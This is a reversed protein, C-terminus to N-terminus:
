NHIAYKGPSVGVSKKFSRIFNAYDHYGCLMATDSVSHGNKLLKKAESIRKGAIYKTVTTGLNKKFIRCLQNVSIYLEGAITELNINESFNANIYSIAKKVLRDDINNKFKDTECRAMFLNNIFVLMSLIASNKIIDDGFENQSKLTEFLNLLKEQEDSTLSIKNSVNDGRTYFCPSLDTTETSSSYIFAPHIELVFRRFPSNEHCIIKHAEFQNIIFLDGEGVEYVRDGILYSKGGSVNFFVECCEHVHVNTDADTKESYFVGYTKTSNAYDLAKTCKDFLINM